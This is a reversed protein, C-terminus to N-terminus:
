EFLKTQNNISLDNIRFGMLFGDLWKKEKSEPPLSEEILRRNNKM